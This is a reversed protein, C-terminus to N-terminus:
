AIGAQLGLLDTARPDASFGVEVRRDGGQEPARVAGGERQAIAAHQKAVCRELVLPAHGHMVACDEGGRRHRIPPAEDGAAIVARDPAYKRASVPLNDGIGATSPHLVNGARRPRWRTPPFGPPPM